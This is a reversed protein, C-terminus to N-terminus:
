DWASDGQQSISEAFERIAEGWLKQITAGREHEGLEQELLTPNAVYEKNRMRNGRLYIYTDPNGMTFPDLTLGFHDCYFHTLDHTAPIRMAGAEAHLGEAFPARLTLVRGGLRNQAELIIPTHGAKLLEYAATLGAMGAGLILVTKNRGTVPLGNKALDLWKNAM